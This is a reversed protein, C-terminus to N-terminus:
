GFFKRNIFSPNWLLLGLLVAMFASGGIDYTAQSIHVITFILMFVFFFGVVYRRFKPLWILVGSVIQMAGLAQWIIIPVATELSCPPKLFSLFKDAGVMFLM